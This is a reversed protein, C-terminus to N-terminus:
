ANTRSVELGSITVDSQQAVDGSRASLELLQAPCRAPIAFTWGRGAAELGISGLPDASNACRISWHLLEPHIPSGVLRAELRYTGAPMLVLQSALVGDQNGYFITHLRGDPQREALGTGSTSLTWNFPPPPAPKAFGTDFVLASAEGGGIESWLARARGYDGISILKSLIVPLWPSDPRRHNSDALALLASVNRPDQALSALVYDALLPQTRFMTRMQLWNSREAAFSAVFPAVTAIGEPSLRALLATQQLGDLSQGVRFYHDALFFAASLSRPDRWQAALFARKAAEVDGENRLQVGRVLFPEASLPAKVAADDIMAFTQPGIPSRNRSSRGIEALGLSEEVSPHNAWIRAASGPYLDALANVAANRFVQVALLIALAVVFIRRAIM